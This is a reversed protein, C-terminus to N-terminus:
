KRPDEFFVESTKLGAVPSTEALTFRAYLFLHQHHLQLQLYLMQLMTELEEM